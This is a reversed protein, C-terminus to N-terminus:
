KRNLRALAEAATVVEYIDQDVREAYSRDFTEYVAKGTDRRLIFWSGCHPELDPVNAM